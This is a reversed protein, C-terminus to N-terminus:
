RGKTSHMLDLTTRRTRRMEIARHRALKLHVSGNKPSRSILSVELVHGESCVVRSTTKIWERSGCVPCARRKKPMIVEKGPYFLASITGWFELIIKLIEVIPGCGLDFHPLSLHGPALARSSWPSILEPGTGNRKEDASEATLERGAPNRRKAEAKEDKRDATMRRSSNTARSPRKAATTEAHTSHHSQFARVLPQHLPHPHLHSFSSWSIKSRTLSRSAASPVHYGLM